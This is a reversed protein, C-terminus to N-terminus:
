LPGGAPFLLPLARPLIGIEVPLRGLPEGDVEISVRESSRARISRARHHHTKPHVYLNESYLVRIDRLLEFMSLADIVTVELLGDVLSARPCVHMGGGHYRGNGVAINLISHTGAPRGDLELEVRRARYRLFVEMTAYFFATKGGLARLPNRARAAVEGGMGFSVVNAFYRNRPAGDNGAYAIRGADIRTPEFRRIAAAADELTRIGLCRRFDGGTGLPLVALAAQPAVPADGDFFGNVIENVTGDGGTAVICDFGERLLQSTLETAHGPRETPRIEVGPLIRSLEAL